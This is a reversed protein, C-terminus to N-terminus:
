YSCMTACCKENIFQKVKTKQEILSVYSYNKKEGKNMNRRKIRHRSEFIYKSPM